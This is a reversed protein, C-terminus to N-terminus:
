NSEEGNRICIRLSPLWIFLAETNLDFRQLYAHNGWKKGVTGFVNAM